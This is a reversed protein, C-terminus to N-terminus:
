KMAGSLFGCLSLDQILTVIFVWNIIHDGYTMVLATIM